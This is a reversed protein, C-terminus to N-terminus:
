EFAEGVEDGGLALIFEACVSRGLGVDVHLQHVVHAADGAGLRVGELDPELVLVPLVLEAVVGLTRGTAARKRLRRHQAGFVVELRRRASPSSSTRRTRAKATPDASEAPNVIAVVAEAAGNAAGWNSPATAM